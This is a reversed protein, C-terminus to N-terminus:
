PTAAASSSASILSLTTQYTTTSTGNMGSDVHQQVYEAVSTPIARAFDYGIRTEVNTTLRGAGLEKITRKEVIQMSSGSNAVIGFDATVSESSSNQTVTWHKNADLQAPDVFNPGLLRLLTYEETYVTKNPDCIVNTNGYVVCTAPPARHINEGQESVSVIMGGDPQQRQVDVTITGKDTLNGHYHSMGGSGGAVPNGNADTAEAQSSSDRAEINQNSSFSFAYVLRNSSTVALTPASTLVIATAFGGSLVCLAIKRM